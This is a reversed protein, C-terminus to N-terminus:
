DTMAFFLYLVKIKPFAARGMQSARIVNPSVSSKECKGFIV